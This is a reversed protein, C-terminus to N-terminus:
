GANQHRCGRSRRFIGMNGTQRQYTDRRGCSEHVYGIRGEVRLVCEHRHHDYGGRRRDALGQCDPKRNEDEGEDDEIEKLQELTKSAMPEHKEVVEIAIKELEDNTVEKPRPLYNGFRVQADEWETTVNYAM